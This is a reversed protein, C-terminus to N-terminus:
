FLKLNNLLPARPPTWSSFLKLFILNWTEKYGFIPTDSNWTFESTRLTNFLLDTYYQLHLKKLERTYTMPLNSPFYVCKVLNEYNQSLCLNLNPICWLASSKLESGRGSSTFGLFSNFLAIFYVLLYALLRM